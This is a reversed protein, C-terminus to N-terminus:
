RTFLWRTGGTLCVLAFDLKSLRVRAALPDRRSLKAALRGAVPM